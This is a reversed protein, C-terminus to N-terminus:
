MSLSGKRFESRDIRANIIYPKGHNAALLANMMSEQFEAISKVMVGDADFAHGVKEYHSPQLMVACDSHLLEVQDRAIQAWCADNGIISIIPLQHRVFTDYEMLGYGSSGDGYIIWVQKDPYIVKAGLAFGAGVGLTGFAGPDLWSLPEYLDLMYSATAVFDGGDAIIVSNEPKFENFQNLLQLPNIYRGEVSSQKKIEIDREHDRNKLHQIWSSFKGSKVKLTQQLFYAPDGHIALTPKKNLYLDKRSRNISIFPRHGIHYGYNLRFDNPLGALIILDAEKIAERRKHRMHLPHSKGMLGRAMGSLYVPIGLTEVANVLSDIETPNMMAGSGIIMLPRSSQALLREAAKKHQFSHVPFTVQADEESLTTSTKQNFLRHVHRKVYWQQLRDTFSTKGSGSKTFYWEKVIEPPYLVDVPCEIFVPGPVGSAAVRFAKRIVPVIQAVRRISVAWKVHPKILAMQDIDQLSGKGKLLTAAAGGFLILPSQAMQANKIATITNTLGPGATVAAIGPKGTLRGVCDAAFVATAEHRTDIIRIGAKESETLIPSIHGGCLTFICPVRNELLVKSIMAGGSNM